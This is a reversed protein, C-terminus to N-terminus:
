KFIFHNSHTSSIPRKGDALVHKVKKRRQYPVALFIQKHNYFFVRRRHFFPHFVFEICNNENWLSNCFSLSHSFWRTNGFQSAHARVIQLRKKNNNRWYRILLWFREIQDSNRDKKEREYFKLCDQHFCYRMKIFWLKWLILFGPQVILVFGNKQMNITHMALDTTCLKHYESSNCQIANIRTNLM